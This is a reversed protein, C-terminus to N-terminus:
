SQGLPELLLIGVLATVLGFTRFVIEVMAVGPSQFAVNLFELVGGGTIFIVGIVIPLGRQKALWSSVTNLLKVLTQSRDLRNKM